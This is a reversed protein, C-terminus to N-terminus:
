SNRNQSRQTPRPRQEASGNVVSAKIRKDTKPVAAKASSQSAALNEIGPVIEADRYRGFSPAVVRPLTTESKPKASVAASKSRKVISIRIGELPDNAVMSRCPAGNRLPGVTVGSRYYGSYECEYAATAPGPKLRMAFGVLPVSIGKTGCNQDETLWPTEFGTGTLGKYEIDQASLQKLPQISFSEIWLGPAVRGAWPADTFTMDGRSRIHTKIQLPISLTDAALSVPPPELLAPAPAEAAAPAEVLAPAASE